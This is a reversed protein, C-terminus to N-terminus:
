PLDSAADGQLHWRVFPHKNILTESISDLISSAQQPSMGNIGDDVAVRVLTLCALSLRADETNMAVAIVKLVPFSDHAIGYEELVQYSFRALDPIPQFDAM